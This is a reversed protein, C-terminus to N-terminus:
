SPLCKGQEQTKKSSALGVRFLENTCRFVAVKALIGRCRGKRCHDPFRNAMLDCLCLCGLQLPGSLAEQPCSPSQHCLWMDAHSLM